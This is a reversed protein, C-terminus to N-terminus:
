TPFVCYLTGDGGLVVAADVVCSTFVVVLVVLEAVVDVEVEEALPLLSEPFDIALVKLVELKNPVDSNDDVDASGGWGVDVVGVVSADM